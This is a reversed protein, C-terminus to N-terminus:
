RYKINRPKQRKMKKTTTTEKKREKESSIDSHDKKNDPKESPQVDHGKLRGIENLAAELKSKLKENEAQLAEIIQFLTHFDKSIDDNQYDDLNVNLSKLKETITAADM